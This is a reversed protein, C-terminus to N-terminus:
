QTTDHMWATVSQGMRQKFALSFTSYSRYGSDHALQQATFPRLTAVTERYLSVFHNIRLDNIYANYTMGQSSFYQSLYFRNTGITEALQALTLDHQLYLQTDICNRQLLLGIDATPKKPSQSSDKKDPIDLDAPADLDAPIDLGASLGLDPRIDLDARIGLDAPIGQQRPTSLDSITEVRWLLYCTLAAASLQLVYEYVPGRASMAYIGYMFLFGGLVTFSQWVEKHELDAYNDRLWRGYQRLARVMYITLGIGILILYAYLIPFFAFSCSAVCLAMGAVLPAVMVAVHWLPRRRDQLMVLLVVIPLPFATMTDLLGAVLIRLEAEGSSAAFCPPLYWLHSLAMAAFLAATWRRLRVPSTIDPAFANSRRLLLYCCAILNLVTVGSYIMMYLTFESIQGYM